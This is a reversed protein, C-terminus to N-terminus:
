RHRRHLDGEFLRGFSQLLLAKAGFLTVGLQRGHTRQRLGLMGACELEPGRAGLRGRGVVLRSLERPRMTPVCQRTVGALGLGAAVPAHHELVTQANGHIVLTRAVEVLLCAVVVVKLRAYMQPNCPQRFVPRQAAHLPLEPARARLVHRAPTRGESLPEGGVLIRVDCRQELM